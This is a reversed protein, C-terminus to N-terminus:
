EDKIEKAIAVCGVVGAVILGIVIIIAYIITGLWLGNIM